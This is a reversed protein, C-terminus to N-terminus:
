IPLSLPRVYPLIDCAGTGLSVHDTVLVGQVLAYSGHHPELIQITARQEEVRRRRRRIM